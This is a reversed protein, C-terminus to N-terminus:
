PTPPRPNFQLLDDVYGPPLQVPSTNGDLVHIYIDGVQGTKQLDLLMPKEQNQWITNPDWLKALTQVLNVEGVAADAYNASVGKWLDSAYPGTDAYDANWPYGKNVEDWGDIVSGGATSEM